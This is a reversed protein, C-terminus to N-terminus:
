FPYPTFVVNSNLAKLEINQSVTWDETSGLDLKKNTMKVPQWYFGLTANGSVQLYVSRSLRLDRLWALHKKALNRMGTNLKHLLDEETNNVGTETMYPFYDSPLLKNYFTDTYEGSLSAEGICRFSDYGGLSNLFHIYRQTKYYKYDLVFTRTQSIASNPDPTTDNLKVEYYKVTKAPNVAALNLQKYGCPIKWIYDFDAVAQTYAIITQNTLDTFFVKVEVEFESVLTDHLFYYLYEPQEPGVIKKDPCRTLFQKLLIAPNTQDQWFTNGPFLEKALGGHVATKDSINITDNIVPPDGFVETARCSYLFQHRIVREIATPANHPPDFQEFISDFLESLDFEANGTADPEESLRVVILGSPFFDAVMAVQLNIRFNPSAADIDSHIRLIVPNKSFSVVHPEQLISLAM